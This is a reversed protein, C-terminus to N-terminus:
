EGGHYEYVTIKTIGYSKHVTRECAGIREPMEAEQNTECMIRCNLNLMGAVMLQNIEQVIKQERYPPDFYILDFTQNQAQLQKLAVEADRKIVTFKAPQKTVEINQKITKVAAAQKDILVAHEIGRSVGEISLGGSGAFLDLSRGGDFYPGLINFVAEKVKDTTPRTKMGPVARLRRGGYEGAVVRM